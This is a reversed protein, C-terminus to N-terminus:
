PVQSIGTVPARSMLRYNINILFAPKDGFVIGCVTPVDGNVPKLVSTSSLSWPKLQKEM